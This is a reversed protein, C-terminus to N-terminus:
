FNVMGAASCESGPIFLTPGMDEDINQLAVTCTYLAPQKSWLTDAHVVQRGAGPSTCFAALEFLEGNATVLSLLLESLLSERRFMQRLTEVIISEDLPLKLDWRNNSSLMNSFRHLPEVRGDEVAQIEM